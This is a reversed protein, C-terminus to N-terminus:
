AREDVPLRGALRASGAMERFRKFKYDRYDGPNGERGDCAALIINVMERASVFHLMERRAGAGQVLAELFGRMPEGLVADQQNPDM